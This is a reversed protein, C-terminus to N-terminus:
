GLGSDGTSKVKWLELVVMIKAYTQCLTESIEDMEISTIEGSVRGGRSM